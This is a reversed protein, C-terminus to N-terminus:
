GELLEVDVLDKPRGSARKNEILDSRGLFPVALDEIEAVIRNTWAADFEVGSIETLIDIRRPPQGVQFVMGPQSLDAPSLGLTEVPAGFEALAKWAELANEARPEIWIDIDGTARPVGHAAMAHAGVVM